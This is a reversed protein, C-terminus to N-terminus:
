IRSDDKLRVVMKRMKERKIDERNKKKIIEEQDTHKTTGRVNDIRMGGM